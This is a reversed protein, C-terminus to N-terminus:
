RVSAEVPFGVEQFHSKPSPDVLVRCFGDWLYKVAPNRFTLKTALLLVPERVDDLLMVMMGAAVEADKMKLGVVGPGPCVTWNASVVDPSGVEQFHSKPSPDVLLALFGPCTQKLAEDYVTVNTDLPLKPDFCPLLVIVTAEVDTREIDNVYAGAM